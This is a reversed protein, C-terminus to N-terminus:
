KKKKVPTISFKGSGCVPGNKWPVHLRLQQGPPTVFLDAPNPECPGDVPESGTAVVTWQLRTVAQQGPKLRVVPKKGPLRVTKTPVSTGIKTTLSLGVYGRMTCTFNAKSTLILPAYRQGAGAGVQGLKVTLDPTGCPRNAAAAGSPVLALAALAGALAVIRM